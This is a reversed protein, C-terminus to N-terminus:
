PLPIASVLAISTTVTQAAAMVARLWIVMAAHGDGQVIQQGTEINIAARRNHRRTIIWISVGGPGRILLLVEM